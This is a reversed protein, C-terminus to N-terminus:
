LDTEVVVRFLIFKKRGTLNKGIRRFGKGIIEKYSFSITGFGKSIDPGFLSVDLNQTFRKEDGVFLVLM